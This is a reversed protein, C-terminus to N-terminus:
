LNIGTGIGMELVRGEAYSLLTRRYKGYKNSFERQSNKDNYKEAINEHVQQLFSKQDKIDRLETQAKVIVGYKFSLYTAAVYTVAATSLYRPLNSVM